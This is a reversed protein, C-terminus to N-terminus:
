LPLDLAIFGAGSFMLSLAISLILFDFLIGESGFSKGRIKLVIFKLAIVAALLAMVQTYIGLILGVGVAIEIIGFFLAIYAAPKIKLSEMASVLRHKEGSLALTGFRVFVFGLALRLIFPAFLSYVLLEPFVNLM